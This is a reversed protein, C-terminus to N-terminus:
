GAVFAADTAGPPLYEHALLHCKNGYVGQFFLSLDFNKYSFNFTLGYIIKPIASGFHVRDNEDIINDGNQDKYKVDGPAIDPGQYPSSFIDLDNQFIGDMEYMFFSGIPHGEETLTAFVGNDVRGAAIPRGGGLKLVENKLFAVNGGIEYKFKEKIERWFIEVEFGPWMMRM